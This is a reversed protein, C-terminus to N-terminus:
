SRNRALRPWDVLDVVIDVNGEYEARNRGDHGLTLVRGGWVEDGLALTHTLYSM